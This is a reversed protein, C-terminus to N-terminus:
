AARVVDGIAMTTPSARGFLTLLVQVDLNTSAIVEGRHGAFPGEEIRVVDGAEYAPHMRMYKAAGVRVAELDALLTQVGGRKVKGDQEYSAAWPIQRPVGAHRVFGHVLGFKTLEHFQIPATGPFGVMVLGHCIPSRWRFVKGRRVKHKAVTPIAAPVSCLDLVQIVREERNSEVCLGYWRLNEPEIVARTVLTQPRIVEEQGVSRIAPGSARAVAKRQIRRARKSYAREINERTM